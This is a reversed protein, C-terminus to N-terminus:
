HFRVVPKPELNELNSVIDRRLGNEDRGAAAIPVLHYARLASEVAGDRDGNLFRAVALVAFADPTDGLPKESARQAYDLARSRDRLDAPECTLLHWAVEVLVPAFDKGEVARAELTSRVRVGLERAESSPILRALRSATRSVDAYYDGRSPNMELAHEHEALASRLENEASAEEGRRLYVDALDERAVGMGHPIQDNTPNSDAKATEMARLAMELETAAERAPSRIWDLRAYAM